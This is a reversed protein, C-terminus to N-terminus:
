LLQHWSKCQARRRLDGRFGCRGHVFALNRSRAGPQRRLPNGREYAPHYEAREPDIGVRTPDRGERICHQLTTADRDDLAAVYAGAVFAANPVACPDVLTLFGSQGALFNERLNPARFSTGYSAKLLLPNIPRWGGKIAYTYNTGYFEDDTVRGSVNVRLDRLLPGADKFVPIDLEAFAEKIDKSGVAGQDSFFGWFLGNSAVVSPLSEIEDRRYEVGVVAGLDGYPLAIIDGTAYATFLRQEYVTDFDRVGFLYDREAQTAFDGIPSGLVSPAFLNVPVCGQTLDPM